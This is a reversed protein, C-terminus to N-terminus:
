CVLHIAFYALADERAAGNVKCSFAAQAPSFDERNLRM